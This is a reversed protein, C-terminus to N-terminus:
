LAFPYLRINTITNYINYLVPALAGAIRLPVKQQVKPKMFGLIAM